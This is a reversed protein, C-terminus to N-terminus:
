QRVHTKISEHLANFRNGYSETNYALVAETFQMVKPHVTMQLHLACRYPVNIKRRQHVCKLHRPVQLVAGAGHAPARLTEHM